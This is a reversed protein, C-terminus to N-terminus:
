ALAVVLCCAALAASVPTMVAREPRSRSLANLVVGVGFYAAAAWVALDPSAGAPLPSALGSADLIVAASVAYIVIAVVSGARLRAPLVRHAGGWAFRGLPAGAVLAAQFVALGALLACALIAATATM